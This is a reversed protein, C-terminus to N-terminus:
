AVPINLVGKTASYVKTGEKALAKVFLEYRRKESNFAPNNARYVKHTKFDVGYLVIEDFGMNHALSIACFPSTKSHYTLGVNIGREPWHTIKLHTFNDFHKKWQDLNSFFRKPKSNLITELREGKFAGKANIVLLYDVQKGFKVCDNVGISPGIGDWLAGTEGCGILSVRTM